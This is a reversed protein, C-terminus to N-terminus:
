MFVYFINIVNLIQIINLFLRNLIYVFQRLETANWRSVEIIARSKWPFDLPICSKLSLLYSNIIKTKFNPLRVTLPRRSLWLKILTRAVGLYVLHMYDVSFCQVIDTDPLYCLHSLTESTHHEKQLKNVFNIHTRKQSDLEPFRVGKNKIYEGEAM